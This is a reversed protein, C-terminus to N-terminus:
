LKATNAARRINQLDERNLFVLDIAFDWSNDSHTINRGTRFEIIFDLKEPLVSYIEKMKQLQGEKEINNSFHRLKFTRYTKGHM